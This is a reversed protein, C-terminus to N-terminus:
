HCKGDRKNQHKGPASPAGVGRLLAERTNSSMLLAPCGGQRRTSPRSLAEPVHRNARPLDAGIGPSFAPRLLVLDPATDRGAVRRYGFPRMTPM